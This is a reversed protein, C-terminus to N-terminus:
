ARRQDALHAARLVACIVIAPVGAIAFGLMAVPFALPAVSEPTSGGSYGSLFLSVLVGLIVVVGATSLVSLM